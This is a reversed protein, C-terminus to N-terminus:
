MIDMASRVHCVVFNLYNSRWSKQWNFIKPLQKHANNLFYVCRTNHKNEFTMHQNQCIYLGDFNKFGQNHIAGYITPKLRNVFNTPNTAISQTPLQQVNEVVPATSATFWIAVPWIIVRDSCSSKSQSEGGLKPQLPPEMSLAKWYM